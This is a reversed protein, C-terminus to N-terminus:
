GIGATTTGTGDVAVGDPIAGDPEPYSRGQFRAGEHVALLVHHIDGRVESSTELTVTNARIAGSVQGRIIVNKATVTGTVKGQRDVTVEAAEVDAEIECDIQLFGRCIVKLGQGAFRLDNGILSPADRPRQRTPPPPVSRHATLAQLESWPIRKWM